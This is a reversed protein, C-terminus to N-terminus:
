AGEYAGDDITDMGGFKSRWKYFTAFSIGMARCLEPVALGAELRKLAESIQDDTFRSKKM